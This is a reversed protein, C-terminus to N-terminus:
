RYSFLTHDGRVELLTIPLPSTLDISKPVIILQFITKECRWLFPFDMENAKVKQCSANM